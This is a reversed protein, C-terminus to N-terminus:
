IVVKSLILQNVSVGQNKAIYHLQRHLNKPLRLSLKGSPTFNGDELPINKGEENYVSIALEIAEEIGISLDELSEDVVTINFAPVFASFGDEEKKISFYYNNKM